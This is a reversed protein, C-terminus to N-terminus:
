SEEKGARDPQAPSERTDRALPHAKLYVARVQSRSVHTYIQTTGLQAHGLLEQVVRLDAGGDLLHTAFTHRLVHPTVRKDLGARLTYQRLLTQVSRATLRGGFRNLFLARAAAGRSARLQPRGTDLYAALAQRAPRGLLAVREKNGKGLVRLEGRRADYDALDLGVLESVRLGGAYLVELIARDRLDQAARVPSREAEVAPSVLAQAEPVALVEPLRRKGKPAFAQLTLFPNARVWGERLLYAGFSHVEAVRRAISGRVYGQSTLWLLYRRLVDRDVQQWARVGESALFRLFETVERGYNRLTYRSASREAELYRLFGALGMEMEIPLPPPQETPQKLRRSM